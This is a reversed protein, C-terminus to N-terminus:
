DIMRRRRVVSAICVISRNVEQGNLHAAFFFVSGRIREKVSFVFGASILVFVLALAANEGASYILLVLQIWLRFASSLLPDLRYDMTILRSVPCLYIVVRILM